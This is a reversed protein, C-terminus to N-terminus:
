GGMETEPEFQSGDANRIEIMHGPRTSRHYEILTSYPQVEPLHVFRQHVGWKSEVLITGDQLRACVIATHIADGRTNRYIVVDGEVPADVRTYGNDELIISVGRSDVLFEGNAFVWGHCNTNVDINKRHILAGPYTNNAVHNAFDTSPLPGKLEFCHLTIRRGQDSVAYHSEIPKVEGRLEPSTLLSVDIAKLTQMRNSCVFSLAASVVVVGWISASRRPPRIEKWKMTTVGLICVAFAFGMLCFLQLVLLSDGYFKQNLISVLDLCFLTLSIGLVLCIIGGFVPGGIRNRVLAVSVSVLVAASLCMASFLAILNLDYNGTMLM